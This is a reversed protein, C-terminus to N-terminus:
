LEKIFQKIAKRHKKYNWVSALTMKNDLVIYFKFDWFIGRILIMWTATFATMFFIIFRILYKM